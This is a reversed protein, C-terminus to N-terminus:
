LGGEEWQEQAGSETKGTALPSNNHELHYFVKQILEKMALSELFDSITIEIGFEALLINNFEVASISDIGMQFFPQDGKLAGPERELIEALTNILYHKLLGEKKEWPALRIHDAPSIEKKERAPASISEVYQVTPAIEKEGHAMFLQRYIAHGETKLMTYWKKAITDLTESQLYGEKVLQASINVDEAKFFAKDSNLTSHACIVDMGVHIFNSQRLLHPLERGVRPNGGKAAQSACYAEYLLDLEPIHPHTIVHLSFDNSMVFLKGGPKLIRHMERLAQGPDPLHEIVLRTIVIDFRNEELCTDTISGEVAEFRKKGDKISNDKLINFLYPDIELGTAKCGPLCELIKMLFFGPGCGCEIIEQGDELGLTRFGAFEKEFFLEVQGKLRHVEAEINTTFANIKYSRDM